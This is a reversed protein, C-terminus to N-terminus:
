SKCVTNCSGCSGNCPSTNKALQATLLPLQCLNFLRINEEIDEGKAQFVQLGSEAFFGLAMLPMQRSIVAGVGLHKLETGLNGPNSSINRSLILEFSHDANNYICVYESNHFSEAIRQESSCKETVPIVIKM